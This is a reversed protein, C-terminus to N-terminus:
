RRVKRLAESVKGPQRWQPDKEPPFPTGRETRKPEHSELELREREPLVPEHLEVEPLGPAGQIPEHKEPEPLLGPRPLEPPLVPPLERRKQEPKEPRRVPKEPELRV